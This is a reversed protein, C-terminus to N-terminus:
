ALKEGVKESSETLLENLTRLSHIMCLPKHEVKCYTPSSCGRSVCRMEKDFWRLPGYQQVVPYEKPTLLRELTANDLPM